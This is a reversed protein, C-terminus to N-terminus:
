ISKASARGAGFRPDWGGAALGPPNLDVGAALRTRVDQITLSAGKRRAEAFMLAVLGTVAPAAMSTGSKRVIGTGTRSRAAQVNEGPASIEPKQRGDRTPGSSSFSSLPLSKKHADYSGVVISFQGTAISGLTCSAVPQVFSSQAPDFREIWAHYDVPRQTSSRLRLTWNGAPLNPALWVGIVNQQNNPDGLRSSIFVAVGGDAGGLASSQGAAVTVLTTNDPGIVTIELRGDGAYWLEFEGGHASVRWLIDTSQGVAVTGSTHIDHTQSNGAAIVVARNSRESVLSDIGQEVLSSGDHPGGNTGLSVNIVCPRNGAQDFIFRLAELMQVSDGFSSKVVDPGSWPIDSAAVEVFILDANPAVGAVGSGKGNGAAIDMVHTGHRGAPEFPVDPRPGYGLASYPDPSGLAANVEATSYLRGYGNPSDPRAVGSQDWLALLRTSGDARRFNNHAFDGGTDVIGVVVGEGGKPKVGAPLLAPQVGMSRTTAELLPQVPQSAKLSKVIPDARVTEAREVPIRGTVITTGDPTKGIVSGPHVDPLEAWREADTVRAVVAVEDTATSALAISQKGTRRNVMALQLRPDMQMKPVVDLPALDALPSEAVPSLRTGLAALDAMALASQRQITMPEIGPWGASTLTLRPSTFGLATRGLVRETIAAILADRSAASEDQLQPLTLRAAKRGSTSGSKRGTKAKAM